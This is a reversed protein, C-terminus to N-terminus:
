LNRIVNEFHQMDHAEVGKCVAFAYVACIMWLSVYMCVYMYM